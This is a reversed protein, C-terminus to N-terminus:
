SPLPTHISESDLTHFTALLLSMLPLFVGVAM